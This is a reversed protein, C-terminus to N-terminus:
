RFFHTFKFMDLKHCFLMFPGFSGFLAWFHLFFTVYLELIHCFIGGFLAFYNPLSKVRSLIKKVGVNNARQYTKVDRHVTHKPTNKGALKTKTQRDKRHRQNKDAHDRVHRRPM